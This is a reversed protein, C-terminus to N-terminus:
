TLKQKESSNSPIFAFISVHSVYKWDGEQTEKYNILASCKGFRAMVGGFSDYVIHELKDWPDTSEEKPPLPSCKRKLTIAICSLGIVLVLAIALALMSIGTKHSLFALGLLVSVVGFIFLMIHDYKEQSIVHRALILDYHPQDAVSRPVDCELIKVPQWTDWQPATEKWEASTEKFDQSLGEFLHDQSNECYGHKSVAHLAALTPFIENRIGSPDADSLLLRVLTEAAIFQPLIKLGLQVSIFAYATLLMCFSIFGIMLSGCIYFLLLMAGLTEAVNAYAPSHHYVGAVVARYMERTEHAFPLALVGFVIGILILKGGKM